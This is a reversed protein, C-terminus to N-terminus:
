SSSPAAHKCVWEAWQKAHFASQRAQKYEESDAGYEERIDIAERLKELFYRAASLCYEHTYYDCDADVKPLFPTFSLFGITLICAIAIIQSLSIKM